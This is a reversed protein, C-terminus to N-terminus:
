ARNVLLRALRVLQEQELATGAMSIVLDGQRTVAAHRNEAPRATTIRVTEVLLSDDGAFSELTMTHSDLYDAAAASYEYRVCTELVRRVDDMTRAAWGPEFREVTVTITRGGRAVYRQQAVAQRHQQAPYDAARYLVCRRLAWPWDPVPSGPAPVVRRWGKGALEAPAPLVAPPNVAPAASSEAPRAPPRGCGPAAMAALVVSVLASARLWGAHQGM